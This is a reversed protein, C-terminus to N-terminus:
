VPLSVKKKLFLGLVPVLVIYLATIFGAKGADTGAGIGAQQFNAAVALATGCCLGGILLQRRGAKQEEAAPQAKDKRFIGFLRIIILLVAVAIFSRLANFTMAEIVDACMDQAVFATGWILAALLPFVIQRIQNNRKM